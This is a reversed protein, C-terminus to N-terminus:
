RGSVLGHMVEASEFLRREGPVRRELPVAFAVTIGRQDIVGGARHVGAQAHVFQGCASRNVGMEMRELFPEVEQRTLGHNRDVPRTVQETWTVVGGDFDPRQMGPM